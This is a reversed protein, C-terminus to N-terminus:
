RENDKTIVIDIIKSVSEEITAYDIREKAVYVFLLAFTLKKENSIPILRKKQLRYAERTRRKLLNRDVAHKFLRKPITVAFSNCINESNIESIKYYCKFPYCFMSRNDNLLTQFTIKSCIKEQKPFSNGIFNDEEPQM